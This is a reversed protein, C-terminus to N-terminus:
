GLPLERGSQTTWCIRFEVYIEGLDKFLCPSSRGLRTSFYGDPRADDMYTKSYVGLGGWNCWFMGSVVTESGSGCLPLFM